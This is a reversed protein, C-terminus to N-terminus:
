DTTLRTTREVHLRAALFLAEGIQLDYPAVVQRVLWDNGSDHLADLADEVLKTVTNDQAINDGPRVIIVVRYRVDGARYPTGPEVTIWPDDPQLLVAPPTFRAPMQGFVEGLPALAAALDDRVSAIRGSM